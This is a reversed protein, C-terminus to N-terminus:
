KKQIYSEYIFSSIMLVAMVGAFIYGAGSNDQFLDFVLNATELGCGILITAISFLVFNPNSKYFSKLKNM